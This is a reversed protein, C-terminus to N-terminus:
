LDMQVLLVLQHLHLGTVMGVSKCLPEMIVLDLVVCFASAVGTLVKSNSHWFYHLVVNDIIAEEGEELRSSFYEEQGLLDLLLQSFLQGFFLSILM